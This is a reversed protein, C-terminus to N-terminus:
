SWGLLRKREWEDKPVYEEEKKGERGKETTPILPKMMQNELWPFYGEFGCGLMGGRIKALKRVGRVGEFLRLVDVGVGGMYTAQWVNIELRDAGSFKATLAQQTFVPKPNDLQLKISYSKILHRHSSPIIPPPSPHSPSLSLPSFPTLTLPDVPFTNLQYLLPLSEHHILRSTLLIAPAFSSKPPSSPSSSPSPPSSSIPPSPSRYIPAPAPPSPPITLLYTYIQLRIEPPITLFTPKPKTTPDEPENPPPPPTVPNSPPPPPALNSSSTSVLDPSPTSVPNSAMEPTAILTPMQTITITTTSSM